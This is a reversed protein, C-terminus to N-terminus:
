VENRKEALLYLAQVPIDEENKVIVSFCWKVIFGEDYLQNAMNAANGLGCTASKFHPESTPIIIKTRKAM